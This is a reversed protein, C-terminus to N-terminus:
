SRGISVYKFGFNKIYDPRFMNRGDIITPTKLEKKIRELSASQFESWETLILLADCGTLASYANEFYTVKDGLIGAANSLAQPDYLNVNANKTLLESIIDIAPADRIDDTEPKFAVGWVAFKHNSLNAGFESTVLNFFYHRMDNNINEVEELLKFDLGASNALHTIARVDKPFCSGGYGIGPNLFHKGIRSDTFLVQKIDDINAGTKHCLKAFENIFSIKLALFSNAAYKSLESSKLDTFILEINNTIFYYYLEEFINKHKPNALGIVIREPNFFDFIARGERLFEPNSTLEISLSKGRKKIISNALSQLEDCTGVPVTSKILVVANENVESSIKSVCDKVRSIDSGSNATTPTNVAVIFLSHKAILAESDSSFSLRENSLNKTLLEVLGTEHITPKGAALLKVKAPDSDYVEVEHGLESLGLATILGVYGAGFVAVKM